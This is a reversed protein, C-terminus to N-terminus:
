SLLLPIDADIIDLNVAIEEKVMHTSISFKGDSRMQVGNGFTFTKKSPEPGKVM